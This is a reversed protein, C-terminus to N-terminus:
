HKVLIEAFAKRYERKSRRAKILFPALLMDDDLVHRIFANKMYFMDGRVCEGSELKVQLKQCLRFFDVHEAMHHESDPFDLIRMLADEVLAHKDAEIMFKDFHKLIEEQCASGCECLRHLHNIQMILEEHQEDLVDIGLRMDESLHLLERVEQVGAEMAPDESM